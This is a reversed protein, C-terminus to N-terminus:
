IDYRKMVLEKRKKQDEMYTGTSRMTYTLDYDSMDYGTFADKILNDSNYSILQHCELSQCVDFFEEHKFIKHLDGSDGYLNDKIMYPPDLYLLVDETNSYKEIFDKYDLNYIEWGQIIEHYIKLNNIGSIGFNSVSAQSSFSSSVLGSFGCKNIIYFSVAHEINYEEDKKLKEQSKVFLGRALEPNNNEEKIKLLKDSLEIGNDRLHIWFNYLPKYIDNVKIKLNPYIKSLYIPYSGGGLFADHMETIKNMDNPLHKELKYIAKSKGGAYRLPTKLSKYTNEVKVNEVKVNDVKIEKELLKKKYNNIVEQVNLEPPCIKEILKDLCDKIIDEDTIGEENIEEVDVIESTISHESNNDLLIEDIGDLIIYGKHYDNKFDERNGGLNKFESYNTSSKYKEYRNYAGKKKKNEQIFKFTKNNNIVDNVITLDGKTLKVM